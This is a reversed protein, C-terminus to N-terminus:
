FPAFSPPALPSLPPLGDTTSSGYLGLATVSRELTLPIPSLGQPIGVFRGWRRRRNIYRPECHTSLDRWPKELTRAADAAGTNWVWGGCRCCGDANLAIAKFAINMVRKVPRCGTLCIIYNALASILLLVEIRRPCHSRHRAVGVGFHESKVDRFGEEIQMRQKYIAVIRSPNWQDEPLNSALLWPERERNASQRSLKNKAISGTVRQHKRGKASHRVCYLHIFHPASQTMEIQGLSKPSSSALAYLNKVPLWTHADNRYLDRNRVRGVYYWGQAEVAKIWPRRFGADAVLIPICDKPLMEALTQLLRKQYKPCGQFPFPVFKNIRHNSWFNSPTKEPRKALLGAGVNSKPRVCIIHEGFIGQPLPSTRSPAPGDLVFGVTLGIFLRHKISM